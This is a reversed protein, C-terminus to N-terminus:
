SQAEAIHAVAPLAAAGAALHLFYRRHLKMQPVGRAQIAERLHPLCARVSTSKNEAQESDGIGAISCTLLNNRIINPAVTKRRRREARKAEM